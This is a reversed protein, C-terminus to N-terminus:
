QKKALWRSKQSIFTSDYNRVAYIVAVWVLINTWPYTWLVWAIAGIFPLGALIALGGVLINKEESM